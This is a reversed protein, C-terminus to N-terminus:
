YGLVELDLLVSEYAPKPQRSLGSVGGVIIELTYVPTRYGNVTELWYNLEYTGPDWADALVDIGIEFRDLQGWESFDLDFQTEPGDNISVGLRATNFGQNVAYIQIVLVNNTDVSFVKYATGAEQWDPWVIQHDCNSLQDWYNDHNVMCNNFTEPATTYLHINRIEFNKYDSESKGGDCASISILIWGLLLASATSLKHPM